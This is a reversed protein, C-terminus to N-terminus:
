NLRGHEDVPHHRVYQWRGITKSPKKKDAPPEDQAGTAADVVAPTAVPIQGASVYHEDGGDVPEYGLAERKENLSLITDKQVRDWHDLRVSQLADIKDLDPEITVGKGLVPAFWNQMARCLERALPIVAEQYFALRAEQYNAYTKDGPIGVLEPPVGLVFAITRASNNLAEHHEMQEPNLGIQKWDMGGELVIKEGPKLDRLQQKIRSYMEESLNNGTSVDGSYVFAGSPAASNDILAKNWATASNHIDIAWAAADLPSLGYWDNTPNFTKMHLIPRAGGDLDVEFTRKDGGVTYEYAQPTGYPGPLVRMRDPPLAYLEMRELKKEDTREVFTNGAILRYSVLASIFATRDQEPNPSQLLDLLPHDDIERRADGKGEYLVWAIDAVSKAILSVCAHVVPNQQYGEEALRKFDRKPWVPQGLSMRALLPGVASAKGVLPAFVARGVNTLYGM